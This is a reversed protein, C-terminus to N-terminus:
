NRELEQPIDFSLNGSSVDPSIEIPFNNRLGDHM